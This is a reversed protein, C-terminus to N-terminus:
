QMQCKENVEVINKLTNIDMKQIENEWLRLVRYGKEIMEQTRIRDIERGIPYNHWYDGDCEIVLNKSPIFMDCQYGHTINVYYHPIFNYNLQKLYNQIKVEIKTDKKPIIIRYRTKKFGLM